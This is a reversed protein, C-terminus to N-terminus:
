VTSVIEKEGGEVQYCGHQLLRWVNRGAVPYEVDLFYFAKFCADIAATTSGHPITLREAMLFAQMPSLIGGLVLVLPQKLLAKEGNDKLDAELM